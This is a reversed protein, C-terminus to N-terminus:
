ERAWLRACVPPCKRPPKPAPSALGPMVVTNRGPSDPRHALSHIHLELKAAGTIQAVNFAHEELGPTPPCFLRSRAALVLRDYDITQHLANTGVGIVSVAQNTADIHQALGQIFRIDTTKFIDQLSAKMGEPNQEYLLSRVHLKPKPAVLAIGVDTRGAQDLLRAAALASWMGAFGAGIVLIRRHTGHEWALESPLLDSHKITTFRESRNLPVNM